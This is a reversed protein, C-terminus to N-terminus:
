WRKELTYGQEQMHEDFIVIFQFLANCGNEKGEPLSNDIMHPSCMLHIEDYNRSLGVRNLFHGCDPCTLKELEEPSITTGYSLWDRKAEEETKPKQMALKMM